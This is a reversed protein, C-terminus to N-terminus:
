TNSVVIVWILGIGLFIFFIIRIIDLTKQDKVTWAIVIIAVVFGIILIIGLAIWIKAKTDESLYM